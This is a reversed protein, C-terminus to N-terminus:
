TRYRRQRNSFGRGPHRYPTRRKFKHAMGHSQVPRRPTRKSYQWSGPSRQRYVSWRNRFRSNYGTKRLFPRVHHNGNYSLTPRTTKAYLVKRSGWRLANKALSTIPLAELAKEVISPALDQAASKALAKADEWTYQPLYPDLGSPLLLAGAVARTFSM